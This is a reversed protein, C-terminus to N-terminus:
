PSRPPEEASLSCVIHLVDEFFFMMTKNNIHSEDLVYHCKECIVEESLCHTIMHRWSNMENKM